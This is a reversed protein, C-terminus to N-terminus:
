SPSQELPRAATLLSRLADAIRARIPAGSLVIDVMTLSSHIHGRARIHETLVGAAALADAYADGQDRM